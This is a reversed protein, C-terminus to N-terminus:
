QLSVWLRIDESIHKNSLLLEKFIEKSVVGNMLYHINFLFPNREFDIENFIYEVVNLDLDYYDVLVYYIFKVGFYRIAGTDYTKKCKITFASVYSNNFKWNIQVDKYEINDGVKYTRLFDIPIIKYILNVINPDFIKSFNDKYYELVSDMKQLAKTKEM